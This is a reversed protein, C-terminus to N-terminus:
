RGAASCLNFGNLNVTECGQVLHNTSSRSYSPFVLRSCQLLCVKLILYPFRSKVRGASAQLDASTPAWLPLALLFIGLYTGDHVTKNLPCVLTFHISVSIINQVLVESSYWHVLRIAFHLFYIYDLVQLSCPVCTIYRHTLSSWKSHILQGQSLFKSCSLTGCVHM